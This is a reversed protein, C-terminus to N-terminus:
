NIMTLTTPPKGQVDVMTELTQNGGVNSALCTYLGDDQVTVDSLRLNGSGDIQM